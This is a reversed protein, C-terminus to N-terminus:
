KEKKGKGKEKKLRQELRYLQYCNNLAEALRDGMLDAGRQSFHIYDQGALGQRTWEPM